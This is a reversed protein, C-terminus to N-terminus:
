TVYASANFLAAGGRLTLAYAGLRERIKLTVQDCTFSFQRLADEDICQKVYFSTVGTGALGLVLMTWALLLPKTNKKM